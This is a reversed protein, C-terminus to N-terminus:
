YKRIKSNKIAAWVDSANSKGTGGAESTTGNLYVRELLGNREWPRQGNTSRHVREKVNQFLDLHDQGPKVLEPAFASAYPGAGQWEDSATEGPDTSFAILMGSKEAM